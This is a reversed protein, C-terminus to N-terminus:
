NYTHCIMVICGVAMLEMSYSYSILHVFGLLPKQPVFIGIEPQLFPRKVVGFCWECFFVTIGIGGM